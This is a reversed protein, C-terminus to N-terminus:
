MNTLVCSITDAVFGEGNYTNYFRINISNLNIDTDSDVSLYIPESPNYSYIYESQSIKSEPTFYSVINKRGVESDDNSGVFNKIKITDIECGLEFNQIPFFETQYNPTYVSSYSNEPVFKSVDNLNYMELLTECNNFEIKSKRVTSGTLKNNFTALNLQSNFVVNTISPQQIYKNFKYNSVINYELGDSFVNYYKTETEDYYDIAWKGNKQTWIFFNKGKANDSISWPGVKLATSKIVNVINNYNYFDNSIPYDTPVENKIIRVFFDLKVKGAGNGDQITKYHLAMSNQAEDFLKMYSNFNRNSLNFRENYQYCVGGGKMLIKSEPITIDLELEDNETTYYGDEDIDFFELGPETFTFFEKKYTDINFLTKGNSNENLSIAIGQYIGRLSNNITYPELASFSKNLENYIDFDLEIKHKYTKSKLTITKKPFPDIQGFQSLDSYNLYLDFSQETLLKGLKNIEFSANFSTLAIKSNGKINITDNFNIKNPTQNNVNFLILKMNQAM